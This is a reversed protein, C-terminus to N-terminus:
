GDLKTASFPRDRAAAVQEAVGEEIAVSPRWGLWDRALSVDAGTRRVDGAQVSERRVDVPAGVAREVVDILQLMSTAGEGGLNIPTLGAPIDKREVILAIARCIDDVYTFDRQQLGDGFLTFPTGDLAANVLRQTAMDPRQYPGYVTFFRMAVAQLGHTLAYARTLDEAAAKTVGYPSRPRLPDSERSPYREADGYVSSSSALLFPIPRRHIAELLAHTTLVNRELYLPFHSAWSLRVGPQGALHVVIDCQDMLEDINIELLDAEIFRVEDLVDLRSVNARKLAPDYYDTMADVGVVSHGRAVLVRALTSGIFGATGTVLVRM